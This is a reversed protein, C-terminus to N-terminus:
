YFKGSWGLQTEVSGLLDLVVYLCCMKFDIVVTREISGTTRLKRLFDDLKRIKWKKTPLEKILRRAFFNWMRLNKYFFKKPNDDFEIYKIKLVLQIFSVKTVHKTISNHRWWAMLYSFQLTNRGMEVPVFLIFISWYVDSNNDVLLIAIALQVHM